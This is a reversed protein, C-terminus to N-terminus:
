HAAAADFIDHRPPVGFKRSYERSFQTASEYGVSFAASAVSAREEVLLRRAETLRLDKQYQLPTKTTLAKFHAHFNSPSMGAAKAMDAVAISNTYDGRILAIAKGVRSAVSDLHLLQRLMTGHEARLLRFHVERKISPALARAEVPDQSARFLRGMADLLAPDTPAANLSMAPANPEAVGGIEDYLSRTTQLDVTLVMAVYPSAASANTVAAMVPISHSVILSDGAGFRVIRDGLRTEKEGQLVLCVVPDYVMAEFRTPEADCLVSLGAVPTPFISGVRQASKAFAQIDAVLDAILM